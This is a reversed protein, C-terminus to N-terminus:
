YDDDSSEDSEQNEFLYVQKKPVPIDRVQLVRWHLGFSKKLFWIGTLEILVDLVTNAEISNLPVTSEQKSANFYGIKGKKPKNLNIFGEDSLSRTFAADLTKQQVERGFWSTSNDKAARLIDQEMKLISEKNQVMITVEDESEAFTSTLTVKNLQLTVNRDDDQTVRVFFRGDALQKPETFKM